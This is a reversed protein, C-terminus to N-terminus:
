QQAWRRKIPNWGPGDEPLPDKPQNRAAARGQHRKGRDAAACGSDRGARGRLLLGRRGAKLRAPGGGGGPTGAGGGAAPRGGRRRAPGPRRGPEGPLDGGGAGGREGARQHQGALRLRVAPRLGRKHLFVGTKGCFPQIKGPFLGGAPPHREGAGAPPPIQISLVNLRYYLDSRFTNNQICRQLDKNTAAIVRVDIKIAKSGGVRVVEKNQLVRLLSVQVEFPMDGIEDLFITGGNALEFKGAQGEKKAGTFSGREYGFLESEILSRPLSGCNIAIFAGKRYPSANHISQAFLEKGTGSEGTLLVTSSSGAAIEAIKKTEQIAPSQGVIDPFSFHAATGVINNVLKHFTEVRGLTVAFGEVGASESTIRYVSIMIRRTEAGVCIEVPVNSVDEKLNTFEIDRPKIYSTLPRNLIAKETGGLLHAAYSNSQLILGTDDLLLMGTQVNEIITNMQNKVRLLDNYTSRMRLQETIAQAAAFVMGLTHYHANERSGTLCLCGAIRGDTDFIPAGSCVVDSHECYYHEDGCIQIPESLYLCTGIGNTGLTRESRNCGEILRYTQVKERVDPDGLIKLVYGDEDSLVSVFGAGSTFKYLQALFPIATDYVDQRAAIRLDLEAKPLIYKNANHWNVGFERSRQWSALIEPRVADPEVPRGEMFKLREGSIRDMNREVDM